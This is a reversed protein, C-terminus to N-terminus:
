TATDVWSEVPIALFGGGLIRGIRGICHAIVNQGLGPWDRRCLAFM